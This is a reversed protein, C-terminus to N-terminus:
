HKTVYLKDEKDTKPGGQKRTWRPYSAMSLIVAVAIDLCEKDFEEPNDDDRLADKLEDYEEAIIGFGEHKSHYIDDSKEMLRKEIMAPIVDTLIRYIDAWKFKRPVQEQTAKNIFELAELEVLQDNIKDACDECTMPGKHPQLGYGIGEALSLGCYTEPDHNENYPAAAHIEPGIYDGTVYLCDGIIQESM